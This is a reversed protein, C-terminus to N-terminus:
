IDISRLYALFQSSFVAVRGAVWMALAVTGSCCHFPKRAPVASFRVSDPKRGTRAALPRKKAAFVVLREEV